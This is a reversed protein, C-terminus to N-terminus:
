SFVNIAETEVEILVPTCSNVFLWIRVFFRDDGNETQIKSNTDPLL